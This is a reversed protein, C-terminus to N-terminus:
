RGVRRLQIVRLSPKPFEPAAQGIFGELRSFQKLVRKDLRELGVTLLRLTQLPEGPVEPPLLDDVRQSM